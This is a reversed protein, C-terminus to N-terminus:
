AFNTKLYEGGERDKGIRAAGIIGITEATRVTEITKVAEKKATIVLTSTALVLM